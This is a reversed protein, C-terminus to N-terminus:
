LWDVFLVNEYPIWYSAFTAFLLWVTYMAAYFSLILATLVTEGVPHDEVSAVLGALIASQFPVLVIGIRDIVTTSPIAFYLPLLAVMAIAMNRVLTRREGFVDKARIAFFSLGVLAGVAIRPIAGSSEIGGEFYLSLVDEFNQLVITSLLIALIAGGLLFSLWRQRSAAVMFVPLVFVASRHFLIALSLWALWRWDITGHYRRYAFMICAIATAQRTYGMATIVILTPVAVALALGPRPLSNCFAALAVSFLAACILNVHWVQGGAQAVAWNIFSYASDGYGLAGLLTERSNDLFILEYTVWDVGINYRYGVFLTLFCALAIVVIGAKNQKWVRGIALMAPVFFLTLYITM